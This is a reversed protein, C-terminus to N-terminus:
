WCAGTHRPSFVSESCIRRRCPRDVDVPVTHVGWVSIPPVDDSILLYVAELANNVPFYVQNREHDVSVLIQRHLIGVPGFLFSADFQHAVVGVMLWHIYRKRRDICHCYHLERYAPMHHHLNEDPHFLIKLSIIQTLGHLGHHFTM